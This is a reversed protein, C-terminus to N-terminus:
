KIRDNRMRLKIHTITEHSPKRLVRYGCEPCYAEESHREYELSYVSMVNGTSILPTNDNPCKDVYENSIEFYVPKEVM